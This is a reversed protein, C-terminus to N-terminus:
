YKIIFNSSLLNTKYSNNKLYKTQISFSFNDFVNYILHLSATHNISINNYVIPTEFNTDIHLKDDFWYSFGTEIFLGINNEFPYYDINILSYVISEWVQYTLGLGYLLNIDLKTDELKNNSGLYFQWSLPAYFDERKTFSKINVLNFNNLYFNADKDYSGTFSLFELTYEGATSTKDYIRNFLIPSFNISSTLEKNSEKIFSFIIKSSQNDITQNFDLTFSDVDRAVRQLELYNNPSKNFKLFELENFGNLMYSINEKSSDSISLKDYEQIPNDSYKLKNFIDQEENTLSIYKSTLKEVISSTKDKKVITYKKEILSMSEMPTIYFKTQKQIARYKSIDLLWLIADACNEKFFGYEIDIDRLTYLHYYLQLKEDESFNLKYSILSRQEIDSYERVLRFYPKILYQGSLKGFLANNLTNVLPKTTNIHAAYSVTYSFMPNNKKDIKLFTHGFYSIPSNVYSSAYVVSISEGKIEDIFKNLEDCHEFSIPINFNKSIYNARDPFKCVYDNKKSSNLLKFLQNFEEEINHPKSTIYFKSDQIYNKSNYHLLNQWQNTDSKLDDKATLLTLSLFLIIIVHSM